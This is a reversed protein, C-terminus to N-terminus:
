ALDKSKSELSGGNSEREREREQREKKREELNNRTGEITMMQLGKESDAISIVSHEQRDFHYDKAKARDM